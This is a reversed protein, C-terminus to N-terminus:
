PPVQTLLSGDVAVMELAPKTVPTAAPLTVNVKVSAVVFQLLVVEETVTFANGVTPPGVNTHTPLVILKVGAVPPVQTLLSGDVAVMVLAPKTVPTAAPLTVNVKVSAVVFQLLVVEETVTFANGVNPPGVNTHTPLVILKVGAVPPVKTLLSGDVAVMVLAPKTVPTAAPFTVNVKVSAVVFQLLVVDVTVTLGFGATVLKVVAFM